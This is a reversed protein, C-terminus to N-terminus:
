FNYGVGLSINYGVHSYGWQDRYIPIVSGGALISVHSIHFIFGLDACPSIFSRDPGTHYWSGDMAQYATSGWYFGPGLYVNVAKGLRLVGGATVVLRGDKRKGQMLFSNETTPNMNVEEGGAYPGGIGCQLGVYWGFLWVQGFRAGIHFTPKSDYTGTGLVFSKKAYIKKVRTTSITIGTYDVTQAQLGLAALMLALTILIKRM